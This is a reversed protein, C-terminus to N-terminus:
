EEWTGVREIKQTQSERYTWKGQVFDMLKRAKLEQAKRAHENSLREQGKLFELM